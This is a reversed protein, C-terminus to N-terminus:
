FLDLMSDLYIEERVILRYEPKTMYYLLMELIVASGLGRGELKFHSIGMPLYIRLIEEPGIFGPNKMARSFRYGEQGGPATCIHEPGDEGLNKRSVSEYCRKRDTCGFWCCENCLLEAKARLPAPLAALQDTARNLRFDPVVFRFEERALERELDRFDTLM